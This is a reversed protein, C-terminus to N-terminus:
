MKKGRNATREATRVMVVMAVEAPEAVPLVAMKVGAVAGAMYVVVQVGEEETVVQVAGGLPVGM